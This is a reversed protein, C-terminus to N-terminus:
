PKSAGASSAAGVDRSGFDVEVLMGAKLAGDKNPVLAVVEVTRTM